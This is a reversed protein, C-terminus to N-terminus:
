IASRSITMVNSSRRFGPHPSESKSSQVHVPLVPPIRTPHNTLAANAFPGKENVVRRRPIGLSNVKILLRALLEPGDNKASNFLPSAKDAVLCDDRALCPGCNDSGMGCRVYLFISM